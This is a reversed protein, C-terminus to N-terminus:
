VSLAKEIMSVHTIGALEADKLMEVVPVEVSVVSSGEAVRWLMWLAAEYMMQLSTEAARLPADDLIMVGVREVETPILDDLVRRAAEAGRKVISEINPIVKKLEIWTALSTDPYILSVENRGVELIRVRKPARVMSLAVATFGPKMLRSGIKVSGALAVSIRVDGEPLSEFYRLIPPLVVISTAVGVAESDTAAKRELMFVRALSLPHRCVYITIRV